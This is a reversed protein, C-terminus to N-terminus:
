AYDTTPDEATYLNMIKTGDASYLDLVRPVSISSYSDIFYRCDPSLAIHHWGEECTLRQAKGVSAKTVGKKLNRVGIRFLHNEVPSVEASTYYINEGDNDLYKVDADVETIRRLNGDNDCLYLNRYGDRNATRYIFIDNRGKIFYLPDLPEVYKGNDETLITKVYNGNPDFMCLKMHKQSRDLM